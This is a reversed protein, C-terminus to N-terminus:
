KSSLVAEIDMAKLVMELQLRKDPDSFDIGLDREIRAIRDILTSRHIYLKRAAATYSLNEDLFTKLTELYSIDSEQDHSLLTAFGSPYYTEVPLGGLSNIIMETLAYSEFYYLQEGAALLLGNEVASLSQQYYVKVNFLDSFENSIGACLGMSRLLEGLKQNFPIRPDSAGAARLTDFNVFAVIDNDHVFAYSDAFTDEFIDCIYAMPLQNYSSTYRLCICRYATQRNSGTLLLRQSQSLPLEQVLSRLVRKMSAEAGNIIQPDKAIALQLCEALHEALRDEGDVFEGDQLSIVVCGEYQDNKNFLNVCLAKNGHIDLRIANRRDTMLDSVSLYKSMTGSSLFGGDTVAWNSDTLQTVSGAIVRFSKDLVYVAKRFIPGADRVIGQINPEEILGRLMRDDWEDYKDYVSQVFQYVKFFDARNRILIVCMKDKYYNLTLNEGICVLVSDKQIRPRKPLHEVTALYLHDSLFLEDTDMYFEPRPLHLERSRPGVIEAKYVAKLENYLIDANLKM